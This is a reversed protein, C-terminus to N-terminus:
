LPLCSAVIATEDFKMPKESFYNSNKVLAVCFQRAGSFIQM